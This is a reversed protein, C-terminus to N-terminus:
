LKLKIENYLDSKKKNKNSGLQKININLNNAIKHLDVLKYDKEKKLEDINTPIHIEVKKEEKKQMEIEFEPKLIQHIKNLVSKDFKSNGESNLIPQYYNNKRLMVIFNRESDYDNMLTYLYTETDIVLLCMNYYDCIYHIVQPLFSKSNLINDKIVKKNFKKKRYNNKTYFSDLNYVLNNRLEDIINEKQSSGELIFEPNLISLIANFFSYDSPTGKIYYKKHNDFIPILLPPIDRIQDESCLYIKKENEYTSKDMQKAETKGKCLNNFESRLITNRLISPSIYNDVMFNENINKLNIDIIDKVNKISSEITQLSITNNMNNILNILSNLYLILKIKNNLNHFLLHIKKIIPKM